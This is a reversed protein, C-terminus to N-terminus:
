SKNLKKNSKKETITPDDTSHVHDQQQTQGIKDQKGRGTTKAEEQHKQRKRTNKGRGTM